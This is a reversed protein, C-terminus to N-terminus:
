VNQRTNQPYANADMEAYAGFGAVPDTLLLSPTIGLVSSGAGGNPASDYGARAALGPGLDLAGLRWGTVGPANERRAALWSSHQAYGPITSPLLEDLIQAQAPIPLALALLLLTRRFFM